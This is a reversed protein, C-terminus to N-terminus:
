DQLQHIEWGGEVRRVQYRRMGDLFAFIAQDQDLWRWERIRGEWIRAAYEYVADTATARPRTTRHLTTTLTM